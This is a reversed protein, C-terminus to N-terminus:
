LFLDTESMRFSWIIKGKRNLPQLKQQDLKRLYPEPDLLPDDQDQIDSTPQSKATNLNGVITDRTGLVTQGTGSFFGLFLLHVNLLFIFLIIKAKMNQM